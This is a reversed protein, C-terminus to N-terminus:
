SPRLKSRGLMEKTGKTISPEKGKKRRDGNGSVHRGRRRKKQRPGGRGRRLQRRRLCLLPKLVLAVGYLPSLKVPRAAKMVNVNTVAEISAAVPDNALEAIAGERGDPQGDVRLHHITPRSLCLWASPFRYALSSM